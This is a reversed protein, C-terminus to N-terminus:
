SDRAVGHPHNARGPSRLCPRLVDDQGEVHRGDARVRDAPADTREERRDGCHSSKRTPVPTSGSRSVSQILTLPGESMWLSFSTMM